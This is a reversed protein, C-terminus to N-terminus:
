SIIRKKTWGEDFPTYFNVSLKMYIQLWEGKIRVYDDDEFASLWIPTDDKRTAAQFLYWRAHAKDGEITIDPSVFYHVAFKFAAKKFHDHIAERGQYIGFLPRGDWIADVTFLKALEDANYNDDCAKAYRIKLRKIAELDELKQVRRALDELNVM